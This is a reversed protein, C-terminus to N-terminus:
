NKFVVNGYGGIFFNENNTLMEVILWLVISSELVKSQLKVNENLTDFVLTSRAAITFISMQSFNVNEIEIVM